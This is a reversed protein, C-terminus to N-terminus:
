LSGKKDDLKYKDSILAIANDLDTASVLYHNGGGMYSLIQSTQASSLAYGSAYQLGRVFANAESLTHNRLADDSLNAKAEKLYHIATGAAILALNEKIIERQKDREVLDKNVIATRGALFADMITKNCGLVANRGNSYKGWFRDTGSTPFDVAESFYGFAEDWHHEMKTYNAGDELTTNDVAMKEDGLYGFTIQYLFVASMIGKEIIQAYEMGKSDFLYQKSGSQIVGATDKKGAFVGTKTSDSLKALGDMYFDFDFAHKSNDSVAKDKLQKTTGNLESSSFPSNANAFMDKMKQASISTGPTNATKMYAILESAMNMRQTQGNFSVSSSGKRLFTYTSPIALKDPTTSPEPYVCTGDDKKAEASYNTAREDM